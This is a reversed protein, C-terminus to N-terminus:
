SFVAMNISAAMVAHGASSPHIGDYTNASTLRYVSTADPAVPWLLTPELTLTNSTNTWVGRSQGAGAGSVIYCVAGAYANVTWNKSTDILTSTSGSTATGTDLSAGAKWFGGTLSAVNGSTVELAAAPDFFGNFPSLAGARVWANHTQRETEGTIITQNSATLWGDTSTTRPVITTLYLPADPGLVRRLANGINILDARLQIATRLGAYLDNTGYEVVAGTGYAALAMRYQCGRGLFSNAYDGAKGLNLFPMTDNVALQLFGRQRDATDGQGELISDGIGVLCKPNVQDTYGLILIPALGGTNGTGVNGGGNSLNSGVTRGEGKSGDTGIYGFTYQTAGDADHYSRVYIYDSAAADIGLVDSTVLGGLGLPITSQGGATVRCIKTTDSPLEVGAQINFQNVAVSDGVGMTTSIFFNGYVLAIGSAPYITKHRTRTTIGGTSGLAGQKPTLNKNAIPVLGQARLAGRTPLTAATKAARVFAAKAIPGDSM